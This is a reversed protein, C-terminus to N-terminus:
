TNKGLNKRLNRLESNNFFIQAGPFPEGQVKPPVFFIGAAFISMLRDLNPVPSSELGNKAIIRQYTLARYLREPTNQFSVFNLGALIGANDASPVLFEFGQRYVRLSKKDWVPIRDIPATRGIHSYHLIKRQPGL